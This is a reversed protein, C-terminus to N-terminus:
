LDNISGKIVCRIKQAISYDYTHARTEPMMQKIRFDESVVLFGVEIGAWVIASLILIGILRMFQTLKTESFYDEMLIEMSGEPGSETMVGATNPESKLHATSQLQTRKGKLFTLRWKGTSDYYADQEICILCLAPFLHAQIILTISLDKYMSYPCLLVGAIFWLVMMGVSTGM